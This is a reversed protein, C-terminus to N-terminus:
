TKDEAWRELDLSEVAPPYAPWNDEAVCRGYMALMRKYDARGQEIFRLSADFVMVAHPPKQEVAIFRFGTRQEGTLCNWLDLYMAAQIHLGDQSAKKRFAHPSADHTTKVDMLFPQGDPVFDLRARVPVNNAADFTVLSLESQGKALLPGAKTHNSVTRAMNFVANYEDAKLVVLGAKEQAARWEKCAKAANTWKKGPEYEDPQIVIGPLPKDPELIVSHALTGLM